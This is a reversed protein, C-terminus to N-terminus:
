SACCRTAREGASWTCWRSTAARCSPRRAPDGAPLGARPQRPHLPRDRGPEAAADARDRRVGRSGRRCTAPRCSGRTTPTSSRPSAGAGARGRRATGVPRRATGRGGVHAAVGPAAVPGHRQAPLPRHRRRRARQHVRGRPEGRHAGAAGARRRGAVLHRLLHLRVPRLHRARRRGGLRHRALRGRDGAGARDARDGGPRRGAARGAPRGAAAAAPVAGRPLRLRDILPRAWERTTADLLGTTSANTVEAGVAGTLWYALLDPILLLQRAAALQATDRAPPSSSSPTSRCTSCGASGTCSRRAPRRRARGAGRDRAPRRPLPGPQGAARRRRGAARLRRGLQRHRRRGAPRRGPRRRAPRRPHRAYLGLVDWHLTGPRACRGTRSGTCRTCTWGTRASGRSWSGAAPRGWTSPRSRGSSM